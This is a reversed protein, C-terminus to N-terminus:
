MINIDTVQPWTVEIVEEYLLWLDSPFYQFGEWEFSACWNPAIREPDHGMESNIIVWTCSSQIIFNHDTIGSVTMQLWGLDGFTTQKYSKISFLYLCSFTRMTNIVDLRLSQYYAIHGTQTLKPWWTVKIQLWTKFNVNLTLNYTGVHKLSGQYSFCSPAFIVKM